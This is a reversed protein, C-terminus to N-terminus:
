CLVNNQIINQFVLRISNRCFYEVNVLERNVNELVEKINSNSNFLNIDGAFMIPDLFKTVHQLDNAFISILLPDLMSSQSVGCKNKASPTAGESYRVYQKQSNLYSKFWDIYQHKIGYKELKKILIKHDMTDFPKDIFVGLTFQKENFSNSIRNSLKLIAHETSHSSQFGFQKEYLIKNETIFDYIRHVHYVRPNKLFM